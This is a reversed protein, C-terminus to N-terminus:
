WCQRDGEFCFLNEILTLLYGLPNQLFLVLCPKRSMLSAMKPRYAMNHDLDPWLAQGQITFDSLQTRSKTIRHVTPWWAGGDMPNGLCSHQLPNSNGEGPSRGSGPILGLDGENRTSAKVESGGPFGKFLDWYDTTKFSAFSHVFFLWFGVTWNYFRTRTGGWSIHM